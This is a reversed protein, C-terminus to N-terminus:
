LLPWVAVRLEDLRSPACAIPTTANWAFVAVPALGPALLDVVRQLKIQGSRGAVRANWHTNSIHPACTSCAM